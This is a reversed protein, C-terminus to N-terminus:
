RSSHNSAVAIVSATERHSLHHLMTGMTVGFLLKSALSVSYPMLTVFAPNVVPLIIFFNVTWVLALMFLSSTVIFGANPCRHARGSVSTVNSYWRTAFRSLLPAALAVLAISLVLHILIGLAPAFPGDVAAPWISATIQRAVTASSISYASSYATVWLIEAMGGALGALLIAPCNEFRTNRIM